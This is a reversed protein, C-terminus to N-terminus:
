DMARCYRTLCDNIEQIAELKIVKEEFNEM